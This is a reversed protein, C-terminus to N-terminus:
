LVHFVSEMWQMCVIKFILMKREIDWGIKFCKQRHQYVTIYIVVLPIQFFENKWNGSM